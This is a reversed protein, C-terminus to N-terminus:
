SKERQNEEQLLQGQGTSKYEKLMNLVSIVVGVSSTVKVATYPGDCKYNHNKCRRQVIKM